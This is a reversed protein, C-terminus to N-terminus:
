DSKCDRCWYTHIHSLQDMESNLHWHCLGRHRQHRFLSFPSRDRGTPLPICMPGPRLDLSAHSRIKVRANSKDQSPNSFVNRKEHNDIYSFVAKCAKIMQLFYVSCDASIYQRTVNRYVYASYDIKVLGTMRSM